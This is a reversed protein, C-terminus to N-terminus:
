KLLSLYSTILSDGFFASLAFGLSLFPVFPYEGGEDKKVKSVVILVVSGVFSAVLVALILKQWGLYLGMVAALKIDGGGLAERKFIKEGAIAFIAFVGFGALFGIIHSYPFGDAHFPSKDFFMMTVALAALMIIFRDNVIKHEIDIFAIVILISSTVATIIVEAISRDYFRYAALLWLAMNMLEVATYRFSIHKGCKRCKGGLLTYSVVPINDYWRLKYGCSTCHSPPKIVSMCLPVRYIVVNLFSGVSLGLLGALVYTVVKYYLDIDIL